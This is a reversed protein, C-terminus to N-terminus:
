KTTYTVSVGVVTDHYDLDGGDEAHIMTFDIAKKGGILFNNHEHKMDSPKLESSGPPTHTAYVAIYRDENSSPLTLVIPNPAINGPQSATIQFESSENPATWFAQVSVFQKNSDLIYTNFFQPWAAIRQGFVVANTAKPFPLVIVHIDHDDGREGPVPLKLTDHFPEAALPAM